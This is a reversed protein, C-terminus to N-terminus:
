ISQTTTETKINGQCQHRFFNVSSQKTIKQEVLLFNIWSAFQQKNQITESICSPQNAQSLGGCHLKKM